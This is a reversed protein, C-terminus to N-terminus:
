DRGNSNVFITKIAGGASIKKSLLMSWSHKSPVGFCALKAKHSEFLWPEDVIPPIVLLKKVSM